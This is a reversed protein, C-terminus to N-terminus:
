SCWKELGKFLIIKRGEKGGGKEREREREREEEREEKRAQKSKISVIKEM